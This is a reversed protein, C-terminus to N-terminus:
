LERLENQGGIGFVRGGGMFWITEDLDPILMQLGSGFINEVRGRIDESGFERREVWIENNAARIGALNQQPVSARRACASTCRHLLCRESARSVSMWNVANRYDARLVRMIDQCRRRVTNDAAPRNIHQRLGLFIEFQSCDWWM